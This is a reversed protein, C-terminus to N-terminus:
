IQKRFHEFGGIRLKRSSGDATQLLMEGSNATIRGIETIPIGEYSKKIKSAKDASVTFLLEFDEGGNLAMELQEDMETTLVSLASEIPIKSQDIIAGVASSECIHSLDSSLGDSIDIMATVIGRRGLWTGLRCRPEPALQRMLLTERARGDISRTKRKSWRVGDELLRLGAAAGGLAGSVFIVDGPRAGSRRLSTHQAAEGIVISDIVIRDPTRSIDGGILSVGIRNALEFFGDYFRDLFRTRWLGGPMGVSIMAWGPRAGMSAVDSLSVALAKHGLLNPPTYDLRFDIDEVLLDATLVSERGSRQKLIACDDGIGLVPGGAASGARQRIQGIFDFEGFKSAPSSSSAGSSPSKSVSAPGKM